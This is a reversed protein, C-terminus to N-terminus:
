SQLDNMACGIPSFAKETKNVYFEKNTQGFGESFTPVAFAMQQFERSRNLSLQKSWM